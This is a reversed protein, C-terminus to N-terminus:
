GATEDPSPTQEQEPNAAVETAKMLSLYGLAYLFRNSAPDPEGDLSVIAGNALTTAHKDGAAHRANRYTKLQATLQQIREPTFLEAVMEGILPFMADMFAKGAAPSPSPGGIDPFQECVRAWCENLRPLWPQIDAPPLLLHAADERELLKHADRELRELDAVAQARQEPNALLVKEMRALKAPDAQQTQLWADIEEMSMGELRSLDMGLQRLLADEHGRQQAVWGDYGYSFMQFLFPNSEDREEGTLYSCHQIIWADLPRNAAVYDPLHMLLSMALQNRREKDALHLIAERVTEVFEDDSSGPRPRGVKDFARGVDEATFRLPVFREEAFLARAHEMYAQEDEALKDFAARHAEIAHSAAEIAPQQEMYALVPQTRALLDDFVARDKRSSSKRALERLM